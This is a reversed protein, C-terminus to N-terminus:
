RLALAGLSALFLAEFVCQLDGHFQETNGRIAQFIQCLVSLYCSITLYPTFTQLDLLFVDVSSHLFSQQHPLANEIQQRWEKNESGLVRRRM